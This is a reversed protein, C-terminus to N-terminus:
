FYARCFRNKGDLKGNISEKPRCDFCSYRFECEHCVDIKDKTLTWYLEISKNCIFDKLRQQHTDGIKENWAMICPYVGGDASIALKGDWCPHGEHNHFYEEKSVGHCMEHTKLIKSEYHNPWIETKNSLVFDIEIKEIGSEQLFEVSQAVYDQNYRMVEITVKVPICNDLLYKLNTVWKEWSGPRRTIAEHIDPIHSFFNTHVIVNHKSFFQIHRANLQQLNSLVIMHAIDSQQVIEFLQFILSDRLLPEGGIFFIEQCGLLKADHIIEGWQKDTLASKGECVEPLRSCSCRSVQKSNELCHICEMDCKNTLKIWIKQLPYAKFELDYNEKTFMPKLKEVVIYHDSFFGLLNDALNKFYNVIKRKKIDDFDQLLEGINIRENECRQLCKGIELDISYLAQNYLDYIAAGENGIEIFCHRNLYFYQKTIM